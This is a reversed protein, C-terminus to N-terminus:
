RTHPEDFLIIEPEMALTRVIAIRQKQGGSLEDPYNAAKQKLEVTELLRMAKETADARNFKKLLMPATIINELVNM